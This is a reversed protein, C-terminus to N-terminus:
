PKNKYKGPSIGVIKKFQRIFHYPSNFGCREATEDVSLNENKLLSQAKQIRIRCLDLSPSINFIKKYMYFFRSKSLNVLDAMEEVSWDHMSNAHIFTRVRLFQERQEPNLVIPEDLVTSRAIIAFIKEASLRLFDNYYAERKIHELDMESVLGSIDNIRQPYYVTEFKLDYKKFIEDDSYEVHFYDHVLECDPSDFKRHSNPGWIVCGGPEVNVWKENLLAKVPSHFQIFVYENDEGIRDIVMGYREKWAASVTSVRKFSM